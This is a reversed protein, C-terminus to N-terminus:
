CRKNFVAGESQPAPERNLRQTGRHPVIGLERKRGSIQTSIGKYRWGGATLARFVKQTWVTVKHRKLGSNDTGSRKGRQMLILIIKNIDVSHSVLVKANHQVQLDYQPSSIGQCYQSKQGHIHFIEKNIYNKINKELTNCTEKHLDYYTMGTSMNCVIDRLPAM